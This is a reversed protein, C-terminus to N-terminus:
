LGWPIGSASLILWNFAVTASRRPPWATATPSIKAGPWGSMNRKRKRVLAEMAQRDNKLEPRRFAIAEHEEEETKEEREEKKSRKRAPKPWLGYGYGHHISGARAHVDAIEENPVEGKPSVISL